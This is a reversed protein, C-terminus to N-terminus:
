LPQIPKPAPGAAPKEDGPCSVTAAIGVQAMAYEEAQEPRRPRLSLINFRLAATLTQNSAWLEEVSLPLQEFYRGAGRPEAHPTALPARKMGVARLDTSLIRVGMANALDDTVTNCNRNFLRYPLNLRNLEDGRILAANWRALVVDQGDELLTHRIAAPSASGEYGRVRLVAHPRKRERIGHQILRLMDRHSQPLLYTERAQMYCGAHIEQVPVGGPNTLRLFSHCVSQGYLWQDFPKFHLENECVEIRWKDHM